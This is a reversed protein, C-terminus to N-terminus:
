RGFIDELSKKQKVVGLRTKPVPSLNLSPSVKKPPTLPTATPATNMPTPSPQGLSSVRGGLSASYLLANWTEPDLKDKYLTYVMGTNRDVIGQSMNSMDNFISKIEDVIPQVNAGEPKALIQQKLNALRQSWTNYQQSQEVSETPAGRQLIAALDDIAGSIRQPNPNEENLINLGRSANFQLGAAAGVLTGAPSQMLPNLDNLVAQRTQLDLGGKRVGVLEELANIRGENAATSRFSTVEQRPVIRGFTKLFDDSGKVDKLYQKAQDQTMWKDSDKIGTSGVPQLNSLQRFNDAFRQMFTLQKTQPQPNANSTMHQAILKMADEPSMKQTPPATLVPQKTRPDDQGAMGQFDDM